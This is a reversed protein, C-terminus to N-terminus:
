EVARRKLIDECRRDVFVGGEGGRAEVEQV